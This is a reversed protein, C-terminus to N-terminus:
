QAAGSCTPVDVLGWLGVSIVQAPEAFTLEIVEPATELVADRAPTSAVLM